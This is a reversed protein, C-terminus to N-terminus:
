LWGFLLLLVVVLLVIVIATGVDIHGAAPDPVPNEGSSPPAKLVAPFQTNDELWNKAFSVFFPAVVLIAAHQSEDLGLGFAILFQIMAEVFAIDIFTRLARRAPDGM